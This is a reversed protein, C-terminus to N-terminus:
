CEWKSIMHPSAESTGYPETYGKVPGLIGRISAECSEPGAEAPTHRARSRIRHM